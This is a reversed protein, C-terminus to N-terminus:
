NHGGSQAKWKRLLGYLRYMIPRLPIDINGIYSFEKGRFQRKYSTISPWRKDDIGGLDYWDMGRKRAERIGAWHLYTTVKSNLKDSFSAGFLYTATKNFYLVLLSAAPEGNVYGYIIGLSCQKADQMNLFVPFNKVLSHFYSKSPYANKGGNRRLTDEAMAFFQELDEETMQPKSQITVGRKEARNLNSRTTSHMRALIDKEEGELSVSLNFRPQVYYNPIKFGHDKLATKLSEIPPELRIFILGPFHKKSWNRILHFLELLKQENFFHPDTLPGRPLYGYTFGFPLRQEVFTFCAVTRKQEVVYYRGIKKGMSEQFQGWEWTQMFAGVPPYHAAVFSNWENQGASEAHIIKM